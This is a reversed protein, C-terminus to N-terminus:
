VHARGIEKLPRQRHPLAALRKGLVVGVNLVQGGRSDALKVLLPTKGSGPEGVLLILKTQLAAIEDVIKGLRELM